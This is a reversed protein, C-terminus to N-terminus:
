EELTYAGQEIWDIACSPADLPSQHGVSGGHERKHRHVSCHGEVNLGDGEDIVPIEGTGFALYRGSGDPVLEKYM